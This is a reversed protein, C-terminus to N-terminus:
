RFLGEALNPGLVPIREFFSEFLSQKRLFEDPHIGLECPLVRFEKRQSKDRAYIRQIGVICKNPEFYASENLLSDRDETLFFERELGESTFMCVKGIPLGAYTTQKILYGRGGWLGAALAAQTRSGIIGNDVAVAKGSSIFDPPLFRRQLDEITAICKFRMVDSVFNQLFVKNSIARREIVYAGDIHAENIIKQKLDLGKIPTFKIDQKVHRMIVPVERAILTAVLQQNEMGEFQRKQNLARNYFNETVTLRCLFRFVEDGFLAIDM